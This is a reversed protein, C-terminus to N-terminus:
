SSACAGREVAVVEMEGTSCSWFVERTLHGAAKRVVLGLMESDEQYPPGARSWAEGM